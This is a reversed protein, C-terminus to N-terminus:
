ASLETDARSWCEALKPALPVVLHERVQFDIREGNDALALDPGLGVLVAASVFSPAGSRGAMAALNRAIQTGLAYGVLCDFPFNIGAIVLNSCIRRVLRDLQRSVPPSQPVLLHILESYMAAITARLSPASGSTPTMILPMTLASVEMPRRTKLEAKLSLALCSTVTESVSLLESFQPLESRRLGSIAEFFPWSTEHQSLIEAIREQRLEAMGQLIRLQKDADSRTWSPVEVIPGVSSVPLAGEGHASAWVTRSSIQFRGLAEFTIPMARLQADWTWITRGSLNVNPPLAPPTLREKPKPRAPERSDPADGTRQNALYKQAATVLSDLAKALRVGTGSLSLDLGRFDVYDFRALNLPIDSDQIGGLLVPIIAKRRKLVHAIENRVNDSEVSHEDLLVVLCACGNLARQIDREWDTGAILNLRDIWIAVGRARLEAGIRDAIEPVRRSYGIFAYATSKSM